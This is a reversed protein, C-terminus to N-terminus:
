MEGREGATCSLLAHVSTMKGDRQKPEWGHVILKFYDWQQWPRM